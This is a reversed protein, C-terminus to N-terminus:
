YLAQVSRRESDVLGSLLADTEHKLAFSYDYQLQQEILKRAWFLCCSPICAEFTM